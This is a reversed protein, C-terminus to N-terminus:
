RTNLAIQGATIFQEWAAKQATSLPTFAIFAGVVSLAETVVFRLWFSNM